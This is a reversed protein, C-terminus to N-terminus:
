TDPLPQPDERFIASTIRRPGHGHLHPASWTPLGAPGFYSWRASRCQNASAGLIPWRLGDRGGGFGWFLNHIKEHWHARGGDLRLAAYLYHSERHNRDAHGAASKEDGGRDDLCRRIRHLRFLCNGRRE